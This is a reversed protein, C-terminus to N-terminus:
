VWASRPGGGYSDGGFFSGRREIFEAVLARQREDLAEHIQAMAEIMAVRVKAFSADAKGSVGEAATRDFSEGRFLSSLDSTDRWEGRAERMTRKVQDVASMIVKEQGPTTQLREFLRRLFFGRGGFPGGFGRPGDDHGGWRGRGWDGRHHGGGHHHHGCGGGMHRPGGWGYGPGCGGGHRGHRLVKVLGILCATGILFGIM